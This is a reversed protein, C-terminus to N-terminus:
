EAAEPTEDETFKGSTLLMEERRAKALQKRTMIALATIARDRSEAVRTQQEDFGGRDIVARRKANRAISSVAKVVQTNTWEEAEVDTMVRVTNGDVRALLDPREDHIQQSLGLARLQFKSPDRLLNVQYIKEIKQSPIVDGKQLADFDLPFADSM